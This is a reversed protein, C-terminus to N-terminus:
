VGFLTAKEALGPDSELMQIRFHAALQKRYVPLIAVLRASEEPKVDQPSTKMKAHLDLMWVAESCRLGKKNTHRTVKEEREDQTQRDCLIELCELRFAEDNGLREAIEAQTPFPYGNNRPKKEIM